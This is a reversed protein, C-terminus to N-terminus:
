SKFYVLQQTTALVRGARNWLCATQDFYGRRFVQGICQGMVYDAGTAALDAEDAHFYSTMSVTGVPVREARRAFVRPYFLDCQAALSAFDMPRPPVDRVWLATRSDGRQAGDWASPMLGEFMRWEYRNFWEFPSNRHQQAVAEPPPADAPMPLDEASWTDRRAATMLSGFITPGDASTAEQTIAFRWHQTSRSTREPMLMLSFAGPQLAAAYHVTQSVPTGVRREDRMVAAVPWAAIVGGFPGVMNQYSDPVLGQWTNAGAPQLAMAGDFPHTM